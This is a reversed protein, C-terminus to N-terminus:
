GGGLAPTDVITEAKEDFEVILEGDAKGFFKVQEGKEGKPKSRSLLGWKKPKRTVKFFLHGKARLDSFMERARKVEEPKEPDWSLKIDGEACLSRIEGM